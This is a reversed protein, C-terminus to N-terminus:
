AIAKPASRHPIGDKRTDMITLVHIDPEHRLVLMEHLCYFIKTSIKYKQLKAKILLPIIIKSYISSTAIEIVNKEGLKIQTPM